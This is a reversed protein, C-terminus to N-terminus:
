GGLSLPALFIALNLLFGVTWVVSRATPQDGLYCGVYVLRALLFGVALADIRGQPAHRMEALLVAAAFFPFAELGNQHAALSRTRFGPTYFAPDRPNANDFERRGLAKAPMVTALILVIAAPLCWEALTM